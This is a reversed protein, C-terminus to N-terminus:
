FFSSRCIKIRILETIKKINVKGCGSPGVLANTQGNQVSLDFNYLIQVGPRISYEFCVKKFEINGTVKDPRLGEESMSDILSKRDIIKFATKAAQTAKSQDPLQSYVRGLVMSSFTMALYVRFLNTVSLNDYKVLYYGFSFIFKSIIFIYKLLLM